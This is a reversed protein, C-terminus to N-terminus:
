SRLDVIEDRSALEILEPDGTWLRAGTQRATALAFCDAYSLGGGAKVKAAEVVLSWDPDIVSLEARVKGVSRQAQDEGHARILVYLAEGLNVSCMIPKEDLLAREVRGAAPEDNLLALLAWTDLVIAVRVGIGAHRSGASKAVFGKSIRPAEVPPIPL